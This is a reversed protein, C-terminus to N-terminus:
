SSSAYHTANSDISPMCMDITKLISNSQGSSPYNHSPANM